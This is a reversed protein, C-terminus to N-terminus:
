DAACRPRSRRAAVPRGALRAVVADNLTVGNDAAIQRWHALLAAPLRLSLQRSDLHKEPRGLKKPCKKAIPM